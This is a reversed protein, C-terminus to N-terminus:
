PLAIAMVIVVISFVAVAAGALCVYAVAAAVPQGGSGWGAAIGGCTAAAVALFAILALIDPTM